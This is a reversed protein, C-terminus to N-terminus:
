SAVRPPQRVFPGSKTLLTNALVREAHVMRWSLMREAMESRIAAYASDAAVNRLEGPDRALDFLLPPLATFCVFKYRDSRM